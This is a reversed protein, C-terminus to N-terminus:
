SKHPGPVIYNFGPTDRHKACRRCTSSDDLHGTCVKNKNNGENPIYACYEDRNPLSRFTHMTRWKPSPSSMREEPIPEEGDPYQPLDKLVDQKEDCSSRDTPVSHENPVPEQDIIESPIDKKPLIRRMLRKM